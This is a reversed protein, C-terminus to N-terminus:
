NRRVRKSPWTNHWHQRRVGEHLDLLDLETAYLWQGLDRKGKAITIADTGPVWLEHLYNFVTRRTTLGKSTLFKPKHLWPQFSNDKKDIYGQDDPEYTFKPRQPPQLYSPLPQGLIVTPSPRNWVNNNSGNPRKNQQQQLQKTTHEQSM